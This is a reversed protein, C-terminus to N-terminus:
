KAEQGMHGLASAAAARVSGNQDNLAAIMVPVAEEAEPGIRGLIQAASRRDEFDPSKMHALLINIRQKLQAVKIAEADLGALRALRDNVWGPVDYNIGKEACCDRVVLLFGKITYPAGSQQEAKDFFGEWWEDSKGHKEVLYLAALYEALPDLSFRILDP